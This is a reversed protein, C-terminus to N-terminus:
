LIRQSLEDLEPLIKMFGEDYATSVPDIKKLRDNSCLDLLVMRGKYENKLSLDSLVKRQEEETMPRFGMLLQEMNWRNHEVQSVVDIQDTVGGPWSRLKTWLMQGNYVNSWWKAIESKGLGSGEDYFLGKKKLQKCISSYEEGNRQAITELKRVLDECYVGDAM